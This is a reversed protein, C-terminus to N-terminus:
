SSIDNNILERYLTEIGNTTRKIDFFKIARQRANEGLYKRLEPKLILTEIGEALTKASLPKVLLGTEGDVVVERNGPVDTAVTAVGAAAAEILVFPLGEWLSPLVLISCRRLYPFVDRKNGLFVVKKKPLSLKKYALFQVKNLLQGEGIFVFEVQPYKKLIEPIAQVLYIHGKEFNFRAISLIILPQKTNDLSNVFQFQSFDIGNPIVMVKEKPIVRNKILYQKDEESVCVVRAVFKNLFREIQIRAWSIIGGSIKDIFRDRFEYKRGHYGHITVMVPKRHMFKTARFFLACRTGHCHILNVDYQKILKLVKLFFVLNIVHVPIGIKELELRFEGDQHSLVISRFHNRDIHKSLLLIHRQGGGYFLGDTVELITFDM